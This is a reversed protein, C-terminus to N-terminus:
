NLRITDWGWAKMAGVGTNYDWGSIILYSDAKAPKREKSKKRERFCRLPNKRASGKSWTACLWTALQVSDLQAFNRLALNRLALHCLALLCLALQSLWTACLWTVCLWTACLWTACLQTVCLWSETCAACLWTACYLLVSECYKLVFRFYYAFYVEAAGARFDCSKLASYM